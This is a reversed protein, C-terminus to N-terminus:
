LFLKYIYKLEILIKKELVSTHDKM